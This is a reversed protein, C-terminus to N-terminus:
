GTQERYEEEGKENISTQGTPNGLRAEEGNEEEGRAVTKVFITKM